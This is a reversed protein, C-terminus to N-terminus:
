HHNKNHVNFCKTFKTKLTAACHIIIIISAIIRVLVKATFLPVCKVIASAPLTIFAETARERDRERERERERVTGRVRVRDIDRQRQGEEEQKQRQREM